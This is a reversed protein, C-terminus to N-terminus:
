SLFVSYHHKFFLGQPALSLLRASSTGQYNQNIERYTHGLGLKQKLTM